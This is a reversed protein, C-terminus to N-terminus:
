YYISMESGCYAQFHRFMWWLLMVMGCLSNSKARLADQWPWAPQYSLDPCKPCQLTQCARDSLTTHEGVVLQHPHVFLSVIPSIQAEPSTALADTSTIGWEATCQNRSLGTQALTAQHEHGRQIVLSQGLELHSPPQRHLVPKLLPICTGWTGMRALDKNVTAM